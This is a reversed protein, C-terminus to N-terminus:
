KPSGLGYIRSIRTVVTFLYKCWVWIHSGGESLVDDKAQIRALLRLGKKNPFLMTQNYANTKMTLEILKRISNPNIMLPDGWRGVMYANKNPRSLESSPPYLFAIVDGSISQSIVLGANNQVLIRKRNKVPIVPSSRIADNGFNLTVSDTWVEDMQNEYHELFNESIVHIYPTAIGYDIFLDDCIKVADKVVPVVHHRFNVVKFYNCLLLKNIKCVKKM